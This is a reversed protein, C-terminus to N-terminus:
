AQCSSRLSDAGLRQAVDVVKAIAPLVGDFDFAQEIRLGAGYIRSQDVGGSAARRFIDAASPAINFAKVRDAVGLVFPV